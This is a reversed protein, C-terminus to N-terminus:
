SRDYLLSLTLEFINISWIYWKAALMHVLVQIKKLPMPTVDVFLCQALKTGHLLFSISFCQLWMLNCLRQITCSCTSSTCPYDSFFFVTSAFSLMLLCYGRFSALLFVVVSWPLFQGSSLSNLLSSYEYLVGVFTLQWIRNSWLLIFCPCPTRLVIYCFNLASYNLALHLDGECKWM